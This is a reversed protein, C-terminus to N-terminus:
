NKRLSILIQGDSIKEFGPSSIVDSQTCDATQKFFPLYTALKGWFTKLSRSIPSSTNHLKILQPAALALLCVHQNLDEDMLNLDTGTTKM